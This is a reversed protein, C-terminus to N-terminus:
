NVSTNQASNIHLQDMLIQYCYTVVAIFKDRVIFCHINSFCNTVNAVLKEFKDVVVM